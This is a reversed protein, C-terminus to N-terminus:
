GVVIASAAAMTVLERSVTSNRITQLKATLCLPGTLSKDSKLIEAQKGASLEHGMEQRKIGALLFYISADEREKIVVLARTEQKEEMMKDASVM